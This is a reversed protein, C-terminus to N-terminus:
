AKNMFERQLNLFVNQAEVEMEALEKVKPRLSELHFNPVYKEEEMTEGYVVGTSLLEEPLTYDVPALNAVKSDLREEIRSLLEGENYWLTCGGKEVLKRNSCGKGRNKCRHYWVKELLNEGAVINIALGMAGARGVRGIRHMYPEPEDPLTLNIMYPLGRVDIGRAAVDTCILFRVVGMKFAQLATRRQDMSRMGALVCCSYKSQPGSELSGTFRQGGGHSVLFTELNDCDQNTRCFIMCQAMEFADIIGVLVQQKIKKLLKKAERVVGGTIM